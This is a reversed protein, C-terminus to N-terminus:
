QENCWEKEMENLAINLTVNSKEKEYILKEILDDKFKFFMQRKISAPMEKKRDDTLKAVVWLAVLAVIIATIAITAIPSINIAGDV